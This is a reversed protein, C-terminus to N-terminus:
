NNNSNNNSNNDLVKMWLYIRSKILLLTFILNYFKMLILIEKIMYKNRRVVKLKVILDLLDILTKIKNM